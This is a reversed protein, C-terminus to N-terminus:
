RGAAVRGAPQGPPESLGGLCRAATGSAAPPLVDAVAVRELGTHQDPYLILDVTCVYTRYLWVQATGDHRLLQPPGFAAQLAASTTGVLTPGGGATSPQSAALTRPGHATCGALMAMALVGAAFSRGRASAAELGFPNM